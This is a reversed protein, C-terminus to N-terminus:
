ANVKDMGWKERYADLLKIQIEAYMEPDELFRQMWADKGAAKGYGKIEKGDVLGVAEGLQLISAAQHITGEPLGGYSESDRVMLFKGTRIKGGSKDKTIRFSHENHTVTGEKPGKDVIHEKNKIEVQQTTSFELAKGGPLTRPDGFMVGIKMRFQNIHMVMLRHGRHREKLMASNVRRLYNGVLRAHVGMINDEASKDLEAMPVLMAISDTVVLSTELSRCVADAIDVAHEGSEPEVLWLRSPDGGLKEFWLEDFTGEIDIWVVIKDPYMQQAHIALLMAVTSKGASREGYLMHGRSTLFGGALALDLVIIGTRIRPQDPRKASLKRIVEPGYAGQIETFVQGLESQTGLVLPPRRVKILSSPREGPPRRIIIPPEASPKASRARIAM